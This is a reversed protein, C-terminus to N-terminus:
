YGNLQLNLSFDELSCFKQLRNLNPLIITMLRHGSQKLGGLPTTTFKSKPPRNGLCLDWCRPLKRGRARRTATSSTPAPLPRGRWSLPDPPTVWPFFKKKLNKISFGANPVIQALFYILRPDVQRTRRSKGSRKLTLMGCTALSIQGGAHCQRQLTTRCCYHSLAVM